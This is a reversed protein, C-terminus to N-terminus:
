GKRAGILFCAMVTPEDSRNHWRHRTGLQVVTDGQRLVTEVGEELELVIEGSLIIEFDASATAHMGPDDTEMQNLVGPLKANYEAIAGEEDLDPPRVAQAPPPFTLIWLRCGNLPPFFTQLGPAEGSNPVTPIDDFGWVKFFEAGPRLAVVTPEVIDDSVFSSRGQADHGAVVRRNAM